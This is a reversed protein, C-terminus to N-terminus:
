PVGDLYGTALELVAEWGRKPTARGAKTMGEVARRIVDAAGPPVMASGLLDALPVWEDPDLDEGAEIGLHTMAADVLRSVQVTVARAGHEKGMRRCAARWREDLDKDVLYLRDADEVLAGDGTLQEVAADFRDAQGPLFVLQITRYGLDIDLRPLRAPAVQSKTPEIFAELRADVDTISEFIRQLLQPESEGAIANHALQKAKIPDRALGTEDVLVAIYFVEAARAARARHHGSVIEIRVPDRSVLAGFPLSELRSDRQVTAKLRAFQAPTMAQANLAQEHFDDVHVKWIALGPGVGHEGLDLLREPEARLETVV